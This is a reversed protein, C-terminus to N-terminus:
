DAHSDCQTWSRERSHRLRACLMLIAGKRHGPGDHKDLGNARGKYAEVVDAEKSIDGVHVDVGNEKLKKIIEPKTDVTNPSTFIGINGFSAKNEVIADIIYKGALGTAGFVLISAM